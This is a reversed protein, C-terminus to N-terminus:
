WYIKMALQMRRASNSQTRWLGYNANQLSTGGSLAGFQTRNLLNFSEARFELRLEEKLKITRSLSADESRGPNGRFKPNNVTVNGFADTPQTGFFSVPQLWSDVAPDFKSGKIPARWGEYTPATIRNSTNFIPISITTSLNSPTGSYYSQIGSIRWGGLIASVPGKSNLFHKGVGFPLEYVYSLKVVHTQDYDLISKDLRRNYKDMPSSDADGLAKSLVYSAQVTLGGSSRKTFKVQMAHYTTHGIRDGGGASTDVTAYQPFPRLAQAVTNGSGWLTNFGAWPEVVGAANAAASGVRSNLVTRGAATFPNLAAPLDRYNLQNYALLSSHVRSSLTGIYGIEAVSTSTLQRQINFTYNTSVPAQTTSQGNFYAVNAGNGAAPDIFPPPTWAPVGDKMLWLPSLGQSTDSVSLRVVFGLNHTASGSGTIAGFSRTASGRISTKSNLSYSFGFRPGFGSWNPTLRRSNQRGPGSGSFVLGGPLGGAGPNPLTMNLDSIKDDAGMPALNIEYRVGLNLTLRPTVRWDDQFFMQHTRYFTALYRPTDMSYGSVYGLLFAAFASGGGTAQNTSLPVSTSGRSFTPSGAINQEGFGNYHSDNYYYGWKFTHAGTIKTMDERVEFVLRDSGNPAAVGWAQFESGFNMNALNANCDPVNPICTGGAKWGKDTTVLGDSLPSGTLTSTAGHNQRWNNFGGYFRNLFTPSLTYDWSGRYVDSRNYGPNGSLPAPLGTPGGAGIADVQRTRNFFFSVHHKESLTQDVKISYKDNPALTTGTSNIFNNRVYASTGPTAAVNPVVLPQAFKLFPVSVQDFRTQPIQNNVFVDRVYTSGVQRTSAPDYIAYQKNNQDVWNSLDGTFFEPPPVNFPTASPGVRNRFGEYTLFWFTKNSGNYLKPIYVPGGAAFGFDNQKYVARKAAFFGRADLDMNRLFEYVDGHFKNTGSKSVFSVTGGSAHGSEAKLNGAEVSFETLAEVSPSNYVTAGQDADTMTSTIANGDLTMGWDGAGGGIRFGSASVEAAIATLNFPSRVGGNVVVPLQDVLTSSVDTSVRASEAQLMQANASVEVTQQAAGVELKSDVRATGGATLVVNDRVATKFGQNEIRVQYVGVPLSPVTFDGSSTTTTKRSTNTAVHTVTVQAGPVVAGSADSVTGTIVGRDSQAFIASVVCLVCLVWYLFQKNM